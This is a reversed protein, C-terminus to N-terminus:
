SFELHSHKVLSKEECLALIIGVSCSSVSFLFNVAKANVIPCVELPQFLFSFLKKPFEWRNIVSKCQLQVVM